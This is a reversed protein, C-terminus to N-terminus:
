GMLVILARLLLEGPGAALRGPEAKDCAQVSWTTRIRVPLPRDRKNGPDKGRSLTRLCLTHAKVERYPCM